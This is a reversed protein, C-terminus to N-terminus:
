NNGFIEVYESYTYFSIKGDHKAYYFTLTDLARESNANTVPYCLSITIHGRKGEPIPLAYHKSSDFVHEVLKVPIQSLVTDTYVYIKESDIVGFEKFVSPTIADEIIKVTDESRDYCAVICFSYPFEEEFFEKYTDTGSVHPKYGFFLEVPINGESEDIQSPIKCAIHFDERSTVTNYPHIDLFGLKLRDKEERPDPLTLPPLESIDPIDSFNFETTQTNDSTQKSRQSATNCSFLSSFALVLASTLSLYCIIRKM